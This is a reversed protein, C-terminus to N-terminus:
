WPHPHLRVAWIKYSGKDYSSIFEQPFHLIVDSWPQNDTVGPAKRWKAPNHSFRSWLANEKKWFEKTKRKQKPRLTGVSIGSILLIGHLKTVLLVIIQKLFNHKKYSSVLVDSCLSHFLKSLFCILLEIFLIRM